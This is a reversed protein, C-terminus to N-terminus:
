NGKKRFYVKRAAYPNLEPDKRLFPGPYFSAGSAHGELRTASPHTAAVSGGEDYAYEQDTGEWFLKAGVPVRDGQKTFLDDEETVLRETGFRVVPTSGFKPTQSPAVAAFRLSHIFM